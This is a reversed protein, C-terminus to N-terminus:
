FLLRLASSTKARGSLLFRLFPTTSPCFERPAGGVSGRRDFGADKPAVNGDLDVAAIPGLGELSELEAEVSVGLGFM